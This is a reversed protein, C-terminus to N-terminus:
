FPLEAQCVLVGRRAVLPHAELATTPASAEPQKDSKDAQSVSSVSSVPLPSTPYGSDSERVPEHRAAPQGSACDMDGGNVDVGSSATSESAAVTCAAADEADEAHGAQGAQDEQEHSEPGEDSEADCKPGLEEEQAPEVPEVPEAPETEPSQIPERLGREDQQTGVSANMGEALKSPGDAKQCEEGEEEQQVPLSEAEQM